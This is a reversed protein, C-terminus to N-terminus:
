EQLGTVFLKALEYLEKGSVEDTVMTDHRKYFFTADLSESYLYRLDGIQRNSNELAKEFKKESALKEQGAPSDSAIYGNVEGQSMYFGAVVTGYEETHFSASVRGAAEGDHIIKVRIGVYGDGVQVPIEYAEEKAMNGMITLQKFATNMAKIDLRQTEEAMYLNTLMEGALDTLRELSESAEEKGTFHEAFSLMEETWADQTEAADKIEEKDSESKNKNKRFLNWPSNEEGEGTMRAMMNEMATVMSPSVETGYSLLAELTESSVQRTQERLERLSENRLAENVEEGGLAASEFGKLIQETIDFGLGAEKALMGVSEDVTYDFGTRKGTRVATLLNKFSVEAQSKLVSGLAAGDSKEIQHLLRYIGIYSDREDATIEGNKDLRYLFDSYAQSAAEPEQYYSDLTNELTTLNTELPNIGERIMRLTAAPNMKNMIRQLLADQERVADINEATIEMSSYGLIRVARRNTENIELSLDELITDASAFAKQISDGLDRRIQTGLTEYAQGAKEYEARLLAGTECVYSLSIEEHAQVCKGVTSAPALALTVLRDNTAQWLSAKEAAETYGAGPEPKGFLAAYRAEEAQKLAEVLKSLEMTEVPLGQKMLMYTNSTTMRLRTEEMLRMASISEVSEAEITISAESYQISGMAVRLERINLTLSAKVVTTVARDDIKQVEAALDAAKQLLNETESLYADKPSAGRAVANAVANGLAEDTLPLKISRLKHLRSMNDPNLYIGRKVLWLAEERSTEDVPLGAERIVEDLQKQLAEGNVEGPQKAMYGGVDQTYYGGGTPYSEAGSYRVRYLNEVTFDLGNRLLYDQMGETIEQLEGAEAMTKATAAANEETLPIDAERFAKEIAIATSESGTVEMLVEKSLDDNYGEIVVGSQALKAKIEDLVTVTEEPVADRPNYGDEMLRAYDEDSMTNSMVTMYKRSTEVDMTGALSMIDERSFRQGEYASYDSAASDLGAAMDSAKVIRSLSPGATKLTGKNVQTDDTLSNTYLQIM